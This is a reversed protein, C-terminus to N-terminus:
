ATDVKELTRISINSEHLLLWLNKLTVATDESGPEELEQRIALSEELASMAMYRYDEGMNSLIEGMTNLTRAVRADMKGHLKQQLALSNNLNQLAEQLKGDIIQHDAKKQLACIVKTAEDQKCCHVETPEDISSSLMSIMISQQLRNSNTISDSITHPSARCRSLHLYKGKANGAKAM